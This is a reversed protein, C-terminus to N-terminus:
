SNRVRRQPSARLLLLIVPPGRPPMARTVLRNITRAPPAGARSARRQTPWSPRRAQSQAITSGSQSSRKGEIPSGECPAAKTLPHWQRAQARMGKNNGAPQKPGISHGECHGAFALRMRARSVLAFRGGGRAGRRSPAGASAVPSTRLPARRLGPGSSRPGAPTRPGVQSRAQEGRGLPPPTPRVPVSTPRLPRAPPPLQRRSIPAIALGIQHNQMFM